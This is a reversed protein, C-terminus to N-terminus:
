LMGWEEYWRAPSERVLAPPCCHVFNSAAWCSKSLKESPNRLLKGTPSAIFCLSWKTSDEEGQSSQTGLNGELLPCCLPCSASCITYSISILCHLPHALSSPIVSFPCSWGILTPNPSSSPGWVTTHSCLSSSPLFLSDPSCDPAIVFSQPLLELFLTSPPLVLHIINQCFSALLCAPLYACFLSLFSFHLLSCDGRVREGFLFNHSFFCWQLTM